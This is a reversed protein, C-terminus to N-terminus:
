MGYGKRYTQNFVSDAQQFQKMFRNGNLRPLEDPQHSIKAPHNKVSKKLSACGAMMALLACIILTKNM